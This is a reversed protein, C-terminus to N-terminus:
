KTGQSLLSQAAASRLRMAYANVCNQWTMPWFFLEMPMVSRKFQSSSAVLGTHASESSPCRHPFFVPEFGPWFPDSFHDADYNRAESELANGERPDELFEQSMTSLRGFLYNSSLVAVVVPVDHPAYQTIRNTEHQLCQWNKLAFKTSYDIAPRVTRFWWESKKVPTPMIKPQSTPWHCGQPRCRQALMWSYKVEVLEKRIKLNRSKLPM